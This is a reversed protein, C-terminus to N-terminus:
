GPLGLAEERSMILNCVEEATRCLGIGRIMAKGTSPGKLDPTLHGTDGHAESQVSSSLRTQRVENLQRHRSPKTWGASRVFNM